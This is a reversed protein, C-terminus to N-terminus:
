AGAPSFVPAPAPARGACRPQPQCRRCCGGSGGSGRRGRQGLRGRQGEAGAAQGAQGLRRQAAAHLPGQVRRLGLAHQDVDVQRQQGRQCPVFRGIRHKEKDAARALAGDAQGGRQGSAMRTQPLAAIQHEDVLAAGAAARRQATGVIARAGVQARQGLLGVGSQAQLPQAGAAQSQLGQRIAIQPKEGGRQRRGIHVRHALRQAHRADIRQPKGIARPQHQIQHPLKRGGNPTGHQVAHGRGVHLQRSRRRGVVLGRQVRQEVGAGGLRGTGLAMGGQARLPRAQQGAQRHIHQQGVRDAAQRLGQAQLAIGHQAQHARRQVARRQSGGQRRGDIRGVGPAPRRQGCQGARHAASRGPRDAAPQM